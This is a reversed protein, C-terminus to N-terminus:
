IPGIWLNTLILVLLQLAYYGLVNKVMRRWKYINNPILAVYYITNRPYWRIGNSVGVDCLHCSLLILVVSTPQGRSAIRSPLLKHQITADVMKVRVSCM